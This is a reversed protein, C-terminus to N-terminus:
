GFADDPPLYDGKGPIVNRVGGRPNAADGARRPILHAHAHMVTQRADRGVNVGVNYGGPRHLRDLRAKARALLEM